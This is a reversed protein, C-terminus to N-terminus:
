PQVVQMPLEPGSGGAMASQTLALSRITLETSDPLRLKSPRTCGCTLALQSAEGGKTTAKARAPVVRMSRVRSGSPVLLSPWGTYRLSMQGLSASTAAATPVTASAM